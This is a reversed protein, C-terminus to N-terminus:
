PSLSINRNHDSNNHIASRFPLMETTVTLTKHRASVCRALSTKGARRRAPRARTVPEGRGEFIFKFFYIFTLCRYYLDPGNDRQRISEPDRPTFYRDSDTTGSYTRRDARGQIVRYANCEGVRRRRQCISRNTLIYEWYVREPKRSSVRYGISMSMAVFLLIVVLSTRNSRVLWVREQSVDSSVVIPM